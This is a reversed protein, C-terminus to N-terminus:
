VSQQSFQKLLALATTPPPLPPPVPLPDFPSVAPVLRWFSYSWTVIKNLKQTTLAGTMGKLFLYERERGRGRELERERERERKRVRERERERKRM